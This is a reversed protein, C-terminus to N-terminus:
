NFANFYHIYTKSDLRSLVNTSFFFDRNWTLKTMDRYWPCVLQIIQQMIWLSGIQNTCSKQRVKAQSIKTLHKYRQGKRANVSADWSNKSTSALGLAPPYTYRGVYVRVALTVAIGPLKFNFLNIRSKKRWQRALDKLKIRFKEKGTRNIIRQLM